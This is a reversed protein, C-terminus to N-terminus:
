CVSNQERLTDRLYTPAFGCMFCTLFFYCCLVIGLWLKFLSIWVYIQRSFTLASIPLPNKKESSEIGPFIGPILHSLRSTPSFLSASAPHLLSLPRFPYMMSLSIPPLSSSPSFRLCDLAIFRVSPHFPNLLVFTISNPTNQSADKM